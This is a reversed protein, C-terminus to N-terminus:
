RKNGAPQGGQEDLSLEDMAQRVGRRTLLKRASFLLYLAPRSFLLRGILGRIGSKYEYDIHESVRTMNEDLATFRHSHQWEKLPGRVQTDTFGSEDVDSHVAQWHVPFPGFWLTFDAMSGEGLPEYSHIQAFIPPPTLKKLVSTDHHFAAVSQQPADVKFNYKFTPM